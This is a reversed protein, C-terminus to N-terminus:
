VLSRQERIGAKNTVNGMEAKARFRSITFYHNKKREHSVESERKEPSV